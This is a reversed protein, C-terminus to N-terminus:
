LVLIFSFLNVTYICYLYMCTERVPIINSKFRFNERAFFFFTQIYTYKYEYICLIFPKDFCTCTYIKFRNTKKTIFPWHGKNDQSDTRTLQTVTWLFLRGFQNWIKLMELIFTMCGIFRSWSVLAYTISNKWSVTM